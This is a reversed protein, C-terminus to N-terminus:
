VPFPKISPRVLALLKSNLRLLPEGVGIESIRNRIAQVTTMVNAEKDSSYYM